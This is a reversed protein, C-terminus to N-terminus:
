VTLLHIAIVDRQIGTLPLMQQDGIYSPFVNKSAAANLTEEIDGLLKDIHKCAILLHQRQSPNL